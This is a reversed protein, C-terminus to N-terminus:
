EASSYRKTAVAVRQGANCAGDCFTEVTDRFYQFNFAPVAEVGSQQIHQIMKSLENSCLGLQADGEGAKERKESKKVVSLVYPGPCVFFEGCVM